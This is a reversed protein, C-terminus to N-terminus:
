VNGELYNQGILVAVSSLKGSDVARKVCERMYSDTFFNITAVEAMPHGGTGFHNIAFCILAAQDPHLTTM